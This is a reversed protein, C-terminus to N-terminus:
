RFDLGIETVCKLTRTCTPDSPCTFSQKGYHYRDSVFRLVPATLGTHLRDGIVVNLAFESRYEGPEDFRHRHRCIAHRSSRRTRIAEKHRIETYFMIDGLCMGPPRSDMRVRPDMSAESPYVFEPAIFGSAPTVERLTVPSEVALVMWICKAGYKCPREGHEEGFAERHFDLCYARDLTEVDPLTRVDAPAAGADEEPAGAQDRRYDAERREDDEVATLVVAPTVGEVSPLLAAGKYFSAEDMGMATAADVRRRLFATARKMMDERRGVPTEVYRNLWREGDVSAVSQLPIRVQEPRTAAAEDIAAKAARKRKATAAVLAAPSPTADDPARRKTSM